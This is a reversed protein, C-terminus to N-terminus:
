GKAFIRMSQTSICYEYITNSLIEEEAVSTENVERVMSLLDTKAYCSEKAVALVEHVSSPLIYYDGGLIEATENLVDPYLIVGAGYVGAQNTLVYPHMGNEGEEQLVVAEADEKPLMESLVAFMDRRKEPFIRQTNEMATSFLDNLSIGWQGMMEMSVRVSGIGERNKRVLVYFIVAMDLFEIFPIKILLEQNMEKSVLRYVIREKCATLSLDISMDCSKQCVKEYQAAIDSALQGLEMGEKYKEYYGNIYFNPSIKQEKSLIMLGDLKLANNKIVQHIEVWYGDPLCHSVEERLAECFKKYDKM